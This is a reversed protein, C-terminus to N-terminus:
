NYAETSTPTSPSTAFLSDIQSDIQWHEKHSTTGMTLPDQTIGLAQQATHAVMSPLFTDNYWQLLQSSPLKNFL